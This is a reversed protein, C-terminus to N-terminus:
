SRKGKKKKASCFAIVSVILVIFGVVLNVINAWGVETTNQSIANSDTEGVTCFLGIAAFVFVILSLGVNILNLLKVAKTKVIGTSVLLGYISLLIVLGAFIAVFLNSLAMMVQTSNGDFYNGIIDYGNISGLDVDYIGASFGGKIYPQGLFIYILTALLINGIYLLSLKMSKM